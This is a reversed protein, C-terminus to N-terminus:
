VGRSNFNYTDKKDETEEADQFLQASAAGGDDPKETKNAHKAIIVIDADAIVEVAADSMETPETVAEATPWTLNSGFLTTAALTQDGNDDTGYPVDTADIPAVNAMKLMTSITVADTRNPSVAGNVRDINNTTTSNNSNSTYAISDTGDATTEQSATPDVEINDGFPNEAHYQNVRSQTNDSQNSNAGTETPLIEVSAAIPPTTTAAAAVTSATRTASTQSTFITRATTRPTPARRFYPETLVDNNKAKQYDTYLYKNRKWGSRSYRATAQEVDNLGIDNNNIENRLVSIHRINGYMRKM